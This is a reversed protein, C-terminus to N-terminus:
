SEKPAPTRLYWVFLLLLGAALCGIALVRLVEILISTNTQWAFPTLLLFGLLLWGAIRLM